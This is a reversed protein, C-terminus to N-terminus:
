VNLIEALNRYRRTKIQKSTIVIVSAPAEGAKQMAKSATTIKVNLLDQLSLDEFESSSQAFTEPTVAMALASLILALQINKNIPLVRRCGPLLFCLVHLKKPLFRATGKYNIM